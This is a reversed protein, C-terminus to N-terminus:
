MVEASEAASTILLKVEFIVSVCCSPLFHVRIKQATTTPTSVMEM